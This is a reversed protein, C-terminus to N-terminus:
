NTIAVAKHLLAGEALENLILDAVDARPSRSTKARIHEGVGHVGAGLTNVLGSPRIITWDLGSAKVAAEQAEHDVRANKLV